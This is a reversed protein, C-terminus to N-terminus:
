SIFVRGVTYEWYRPNGRSKGGPSKSLIAVAEEATFRHARLCHVLAIDQGSGTIDPIDSRRGLWSSLLKADKGSSLIAWFRDPVPLISARSDICNSAHRRPNDEDTALAIVQESNLKGPRQEIFECYRVIGSKADETASKLNYSGAMRIVRPLDFQKDLRVSKLDAALGAVTGLHGSVRAEFEKGARSWWDRRGRVDVPKDLPVIAHYGNGSYLVAGCKLMDVVAIAIRRAGGLTEMPAGVGKDRVIDIDISVATAWNIDAATGSARARPNRGIWVNQTGLENAAEILDCIRGDFAPLREVFRQTIAGETANTKMRLEVFSGPAVEDLGCAKLMLTVSEYVCARTDM